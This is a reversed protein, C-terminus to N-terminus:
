NCHKIGTNDQATSVTTPPPRTTAEASTPRGGEDADVNVDPAVPANTANNSGQSHPWFYM